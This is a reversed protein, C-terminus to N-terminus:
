GANARSQKSWEQICKLAERVPPDQVDDPVIPEDDDRLVSMDLDHPGIQWARRLELKRKTIALDFRFADLTVEHIMRMPVLRYSGHRVYATLFQMLNEPSAVDMRNIRSLMTFIADPSERLLAEVHHGVTVAYAAPNSRSIGQIIAIRIDEEQDVAGFRARWAEFIQAGAGINQFCLALVPPEDGIM